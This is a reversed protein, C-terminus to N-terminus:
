VLCIRGQWLGPLVNRSRNQSKAGACSKHSLVLAAGTVQLSLLSNTSRASTVLVVEAPTPGFTQFYAACTPLTASTSSELPARPETTYSNTQHFNRPTVIHRPPWALRRITRKRPNILPRWSSDHLNWHILSHAHPQVWALKRLPNIFPRPSSDHLQTEASEHTPTSIFEHLNWRILAYAHLHIM